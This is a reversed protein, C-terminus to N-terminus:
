RIKTAISFAKSTVVGLKEFHLVALIGAFSGAATVITDASLRKSDLKQKAEALIQVNRAARGFEESSVEYYDMETLAKDISADIHRERDPILNM